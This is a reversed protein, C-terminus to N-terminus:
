KPMWDRRAEPESCALFLTRSKEELWMDECAQINPDGLIRHCKYPFDSVPLVTRGIGVTVFLLDRLVFQYFAAGLVVLTSLLPVKSTM